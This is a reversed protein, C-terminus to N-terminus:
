KTHYVVNEFLVSNNTKLAKQAIKRVVKHIDGPFRGSDHRNGLTDWSFQPGSTIHKQRAIHVHRTQRMQPNEPDIRFFWDKEGSPMWKSEVLSRVVQAPLDLEIHEIDEDEEYIRGLANARTVYDKFSQINNKGM